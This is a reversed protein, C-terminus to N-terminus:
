GQARELVRRVGEPHWLSGRATPIGLENLAAAIGRLTSHGKTRLSAIVEELDKARSNAAKTRASRAIAATAANGPKLRPNGLKIGRKMASALAAKTRESIMKREHQAFVAMMGVTTQDANPMDVAVFPVKAKELGLLFHADRSLRDLKAIVLTANFLRTARLAASLQIRDNKGGSEVETFEEVLNGSRSRVFSLVTSRQADLGLGSTGQRETSVRYYAVWRM